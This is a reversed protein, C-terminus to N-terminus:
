YSVKERIGGKYGGSIFKYFGVLVGLGYSFHILFVALPSYLFVLPNKEFKFFIYFANAINWLGYIFILLLFPYVLGKFILFIIGSSIFSLVFFTPLFFIIKVTKLNRAMLLGRGIAYYFTKGAWPLFIPKARHWVFIEPAYLNKKGSAKIRFYLDYDDAPVQDKDFGGIEQFTTKRVFNNALILDYDNSEGPGPVIKYRNGLFGTVFFSESLYGGLRYPFPENKFPLAPGGILGVGEDKFFKVAKSLWNDPAVCDDDIFAIIEGHSLKVGINRAEACNFNGVLSLNKIGGTSFSDIQPKEKFILIIELKEKPYNQGALSDLCRNLIRSERWTSIIISVFPKEELAKM